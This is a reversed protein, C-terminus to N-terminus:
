IQYVREATAGFINRRDAESYKAMASQYVGYLTPYDTWLKEIPFNSGFMCRESGFIAMCEDVVKGIWDHDVRHLFTGQGSFKLVINSNEGLLRMGDRWRATTEPSDDELMGAHVLVFTIGPFDKVLQAADKMQGSFVQLEFIWGMDAVHALNRRFVPDNMQNPAAAYRYQPNEHWHLQQRCGRVRKSADAQAKMVDIYGDVMLNAPGIIAHPWGTGEALSEVWEIERVADDPGRNPLVYVTKEIGAPKADNMYEEIPYDRRIPEYPGFIRPAMPGNLWPLDERRWVHFHCDVATM